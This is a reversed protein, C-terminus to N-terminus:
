PLSVQAIQGLPEDVVWVVEAQIVGDQTSRHMGSNERIFVSDQPMTQQLIRRAREIATQYAEEPTFSRQVVTQEYYTTTCIIIPCYWKGWSFVSRRETDIESYQYPSEKEGYLFFRYKGWLIATGQVSRGTKVLWSEESACTGLARHATEGRVVGQAHVAYPEGADVFVGMTNRVREPYDWGGILVQGAHVTDGTEVMATGTYVTLETIQGDAKAVISGSDQLDVTDALREKVDICLTTGEFTLQVWTFEPHELEITHELVDYDIESLRTGPWLGYQQVLAIMHAESYRENGNVEYTWLFSLMFHWLLVVCALGIWIGKHRKCRSILFPMGCKGCIRFRYHHDRLLRQTRKFDDLDITIQLMTKESSIHHMRIQYESLLSLVESPRNSTICLTVMGDLQQELSLRVYKDKRYKKHQIYNGRNKWRSWLIFVGEGPM